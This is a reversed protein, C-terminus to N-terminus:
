RAHRRLAQFEREDDVDALVWDGTPLRLEFTARVRKGASLLALLLLLGLPGLLACAGTALVIVLLVVAASRSRECHCLKVGVQKLPWSKGAVLLSHGGLLGARLRARHTDISGRTINM